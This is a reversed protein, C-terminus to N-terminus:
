SAERVYGARSQEFNRRRLNKGVKRERGFKEKRELDKRGGYVM